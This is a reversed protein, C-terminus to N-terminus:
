GQNPQKAQQSQAGAKAKQAERLHGRLDISPCISREESQAFVLTHLLCYLLVAEKVYEIANAWECHVSRANCLFVRDIALMDAVSRCHSVVRAEQSRTQVRLTRNAM